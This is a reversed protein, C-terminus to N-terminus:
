RIRFTLPYEVDLRGSHDAVVIGFRWVGKAPSRLNEFVMEFRGEGTPQLEWSGQYRGTPDILHAAVVKVDTLGEPDAVWSEIVLRKDLGSIFKHPTVDVSLVTPDLDTRLHSGGLVRKSSDPGMLALQIQASGGDQYHELRIPHWGANLFVSATDEQTAHRDWHDILPAAGVQTSGVWLRVGDNSVTSFQQDGSSDIKVWGLWRESFSGDPTIRPDPAETGWNFDISDDRQVFALEALHRDDFYHGQLGAGPLVVHLERRIEDQAGTSDEIQLAVPVTGPQPFMRHVTAGELEFQGDGDFDWRYAVISGNPSSSDDADFHVEERPLPAENSSEFHAIPGAQGRLILATRKPAWLTHDGNGLPATLPSHQGTETDFWEGNLPTGADRIRLTFSGEDVAYVVYAEGEKARCFIRDRNAGVMLDMRPAMDWFPLSKWIQSFWLHSNWGPPEPDPKILDWSTNSYYYNAYGGGMTVLWTNALNQQWSQKVGYTPLDEVGREYGYEINVFPRQYTDWNWIANRYHDYHVQDSKFDGADDSVDNGPDHVTILRDYADTTEIIAIRGLSYGPQVNYSEKATDWIVNPYAQYRAVVYKWFMDDQASEKAPWSVQKNYVKIMLHAQVGRGLLATMMRDFHRFFEPNMRSHDPHLNTGGFAYLDPPGYDWENQRGPSWSTDHAYVNITLLNFGHDAIDDILPSMTPLASQRMDLAWLWDIEFGLFFFPTGDECVFHHPRAPDRRVPGRIRENRNEVAQLSGNRGHLDGNSTDSSWTSYTWAGPVTPSFRLVWRDGGDHFGPIILERGGPGRFAAHVTVDMYPNGYSKSSTLVVDTPHYVEVTDAAMLGGALVCTWVTAQLLRKALM